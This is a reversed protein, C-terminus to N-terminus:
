KIEQVATKPPIGMEFQDDSLTQNMTLKDITLTIEYHDQPRRITIYGPFHAEGFEQDPGYFVQTELSGDASYIDQEFPELNERHFHIVRVPILEKGDAKARTISLEYQPDAILHKRDETEISNTESILFYHEGDQAGHLLFSDLFVAPRLNEFTNTSRSGVTNSGEIVKNKSPIFLKFSEPNSVLDFAKTHVVPLLGLVRLRQPESYLIYSRIDTYDRIEGREQNTVTAHIDVTASFSHIEEARKNLKEVLEAATATLTKDPTKPIPIKRVHVLCGTLM